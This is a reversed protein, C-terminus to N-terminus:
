PQGGTTGFIHRRGHMDHGHKCTKCTRYEPLNYEMIGFAIIPELDDSIVTPTQYLRTWFAYSQQTTGHWPMNMIDGQIKSKLNNLKVMPTLCDKRALIRRHESPYQPITYSIGAYSHWVSIKNFINNFDSAFGKKTHWVYVMTEKPICIYETLYHLNRRKEYETYIVGYADTNTPNGM